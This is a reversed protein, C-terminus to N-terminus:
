KNAKGVFYSVSATQISFQFGGESRSWISLKLGNPHIRDNRIRDFVWNHYVYHGEIIFGDLRRLEDTHYM